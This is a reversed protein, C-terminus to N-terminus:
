SRSARSNPCNPCNDELTRECYIGVPEVRDSHHITSIPVFPVTLFTHTSPNHMPTTQTSQCISHVKAMTLQYPMYPFLSPNSPPAIYVPNPPTLVAFLRPVEADVSRSATAQVLSMSSLATLLLTPLSFVSSHLTFPHPPPHLLPSLATLIRSPLAGGRCRHHMTWRNVEHIVLCQPCQLVHGSGAVM